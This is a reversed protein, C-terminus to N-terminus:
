RQRPQLPSAIQRNSGGGLEPLEGLLTYAVGDGIGPISNLIEYTRQWEEISSVEKALRDTVWAIEKDLLKLSRNHSPILVKPAKHRRNMEQTRAEMLQRKRALLDRILRVKKSAIPRVEPQMVVGFEAIIRADIKDTKAMIGQAKAFQRVQIPQVIIVPMSKAACLEVLEREYGGTAEVLIRTLKYRNLRALLQKIGATNNEAQWHTDLEYIFIDLYTKGVDIGVHREKNRMHAKTTNM